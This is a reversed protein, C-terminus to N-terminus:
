QAETITPGPSALPCRPNGSAMGAAQRALNRVGAFIEGVDRGQCTAEAVFAAVDQALRDMRPDPHTWEHAFDTENLGRLHPQMAASQLLSSGPPVLLRIAYQIPELTYVLGNQEVFDLMALYDGLETWPTFALLTPRLAIGASRTLELAASVDASTHGKELNGLVRDSLSEVASTIFLCGMSALEPLLSQHELLHEVKITADFTLAPFEDHMVRTVAMSHRIGNFFDPDAFTIHEAGMEVVQRIDDLVVDAPLVRLRGGYVPPIPCHLCHHACGRSAEVACAIRTDGNDLLRAYRDLPPLGNRDPRLFDQRGLSIAIAEPKRGAAVALTAATLPEEVEGGIVSDAHYRLLYDANLAAYLGYFCIHATPNLARVREAAQIGLRLATHMPTSIGVFDADVM